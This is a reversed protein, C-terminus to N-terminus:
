LSINKEIIFSINFVEQYLLLHIITMKCIAAHNNNNEKGAKSEDEWLLLAGWKESFLSTNAAM